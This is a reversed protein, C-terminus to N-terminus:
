SHASLSNQKQQILKSIDFITEFNEPVLEENGIQLHFETEMFLVLKLILMSDLIGAELLSENDKLGSLGRKAGVEKMIFREIIESVNM